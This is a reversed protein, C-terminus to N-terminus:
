AALSSNNRHIGLKLSIRGLFLKENKGGGGNGEFERLPKFKLLGKRLPPPRCWLDFTSIL